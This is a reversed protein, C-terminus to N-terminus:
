DSQYERLRYLIYNKAKIITKTNLTVENFTKGSKVEKLETRDYIQLGKKQNYALIKHVLMFADISQEQASLIGWLNERNWITKLYQRCKAMKCQVRCKKRAEFEKAVVTCRKRAAFYLSKKRKIVREQM